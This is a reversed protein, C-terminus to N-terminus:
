ARSYVSKDILIESRGPPMFFLQITHHDHGQIEVVTRMPIEKGVSDEGLLGQDTFTGTMVLRQSPEDLRDSRYLMLNANLADFTVWEYRSDVNSFGLM